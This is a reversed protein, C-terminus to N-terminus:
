TPLREAASSMRADSFWTKQALNEPGRKL